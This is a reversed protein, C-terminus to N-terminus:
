CGYECRCCSLRMGSSEGSGDVVVSEALIVASAMAVECQKELEIVEAIKQQLTPLPPLPYGAHDSKMHAELGSRYVYRKKCKPVQCIHPRKGEFEAKSAKLSAAIAGLQVPAFVGTTAIKEKPQCPKKASNNRAELKAASCTRKMTELSRMTLVGQAHILAFHQVDCLQVKDTVDEIIRLTDLLRDTQSKKMDLLCATADNCAQHYCLFHCYFLSKEGVKDIVSRRSNRPEGDLLEGNKRTYYDLAAQLKAPRKRPVYGAVEFSKAIDSPPMQLLAWTALLIRTRVSLSPQLGHLHINYLFEKGKELVQEAEMRLAAGVQRGRADGGSAVPRPATDPTVASDAPVASPHAPPSTIRSPSPDLMSAAQAPMPQPKEQAAKPPM